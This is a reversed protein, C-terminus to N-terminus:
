YDRQLPVPRHLEPLRPRMSRSTTMRYTMAHIFCRSLRELRCTLRPSIRDRIVLARGSSRILVDGESESPIFRKRFTETQIEFVTAVEGSSGRLLSVGRGRTKEHASRSVRVFRVSSCWSGCRPTNRPRRWGGDRGGKVTVLAVDLWKQWLTEFGLIEPGLGLSGARKIVM